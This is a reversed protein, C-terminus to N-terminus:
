VPQRILVINFCIHNYKLCQQLKQSCGYMHIIIHHKILKARDNMKGRQKVRFTGNARCLDKCYRTDWFVKVTQNSTLQFRSYKCLRNKKYKATKSLSFQLFEIYLKSEVLLVYKRFSINSHSVKWFIM